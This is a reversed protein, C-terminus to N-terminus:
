GWGPSRSGIVERDVGAGGAVLVTVGAVVGVTVGMRVGDGVGVM